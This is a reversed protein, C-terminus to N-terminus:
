HANFVIVSFLPDSAKSPSIIGDQSDLRSAEETFKFSSMDVIFRM